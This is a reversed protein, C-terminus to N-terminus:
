SRSCLRDLRARHETGLDLFRVGVGTDTRRVVEGEVEITVGDPAHLRLKVNQDTTALRDVLFLGDPGVDTILRYVVGNPAQIEEAFSDLRRRPSRRRDNNPDAPTM